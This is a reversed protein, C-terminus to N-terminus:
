SKTLGLDETVQHLPVSGGPNLKHRLIANEDELDEIRDILRDLRDPDVVVGVKANNRVIVIDHDKIESLLEKTKTRFDTVGVIKERMGLTYTQFSTRVVKKEYRKVYTLVYTVKYEHGVRHLDGLWGLALQAAEVALDLGADHSGDFREGLLGARLAGEGHAAIHGPVVPDPDDHEADVEPDDVADIVGHLHDFDDADPGALVDVSSRVYM